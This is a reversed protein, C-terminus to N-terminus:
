ADDRVPTFRPVGLGGDAAHFVATVDLGVRLEDPTAGVINTMIRPGDALEVYALVYRAGAFEGAGRHVETFSYITGRGSAEVWETASNMHAVCFPRPPWMVESCTVCRTLMLRGEGAGLWYPATDPEVIPTPTPLDGSM